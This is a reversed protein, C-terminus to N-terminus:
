SAHVRGIGLGPYEAVNAVSSRRMFCSKTCSSCKQAPEVVKNPDRFASNASAYCFSPIPHADILGSHWMPLFSNVPQSLYRPLSCQSPCHYASAFAGFFITPTTQHTPRFVPTRTSNLPPYLLFSVALRLAPQDVQDVQDMLQRSNYEDRSFSFYFFYFRRLGHRERQM